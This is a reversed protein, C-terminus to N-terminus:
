GSNKALFKQEKKSYLKTYILWMVSLGSQNEHEWFIWSLHYGGTYMHIDVMTHQSMFVCLACM